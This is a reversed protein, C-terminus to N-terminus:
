AAAKLKAPLKDFVIAAVDARMAYFCIAQAAEFYNSFRQPGRERFAADTNESHMMVFPLAWTETIWAYGEIADNLTKEVFDLDGKAKRRDALVKRALERVKRNYQAPTIKQHPASPKTSRHKARKTARRKM